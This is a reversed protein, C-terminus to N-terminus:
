SEGEPQDLIDRPQTEHRPDARYQSAALEARRHLTRVCRHCVWANAPVREPACEPHKDGSSRIVLDCVTTGPDLVHWLRGDILRVWVLGTM